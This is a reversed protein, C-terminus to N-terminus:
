SFQTVPQAVEPRLPGYPAGHGDRAEVRAREALPLANGGAPRRPRGRPATPGPGKPDDAEGRHRQEHGDQRKEHEHFHGHEEVPASAIWRHERERAARRAGRRDDGRVRRQHPVAERTADTEREYDPAEREWEHERRALDKAERFHKEAEDFRKTYFAERGQKLLAKARESSSDIM